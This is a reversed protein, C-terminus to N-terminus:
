YIIRKRPYAVGNWRRLRFLAGVPRALRISISLRIYGLIYLVLFASRNITLRLDQFWLDRDLAGRSCNLHVLRVIRTM